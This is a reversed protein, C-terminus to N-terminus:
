LITSSPEGPKTAELPMGVKETFYMNGQNYRIAQDLKVGAIEEPFDFTYEEQLEKRWDKPDIDPNALHAVMDDVGEDTWTREKYSIWKQLFAVSEPTVGIWEEGAFGYVGCGVMGTYIIEEDKYDTHWCAVYIGEQPGRIARIEVDHYHLDGHNIQMITDKVYSGKERWAEPDHIYVWNKYIEVKVGGPSVFFGSQPEGKLNVALTDWNSLAMIM